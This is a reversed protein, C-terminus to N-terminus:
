SKRKSVATKTGQKIASKGENNDVARHTICKKLPM